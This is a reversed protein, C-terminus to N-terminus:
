FDNNNVVILKVVVTNPKVCFHCVSVAFRNMYNEMHKAFLFLYINKLFIQLVSLPGYKKLYIINENIINVRSTAFM